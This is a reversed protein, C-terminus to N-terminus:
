RKDPTVGSAGWYMLRVYEGFSLGQWWRRYSLWWMVKYVTRTRM